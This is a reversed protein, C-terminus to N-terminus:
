RNLIGLQLAMRRQFHRVTAALTDLFTPLEYPVDGSGVNAATPGLCIVVCLWRQMAPAVTIYHLASGHPPGATTDHAVRCEPIAEALALSLAAAFSGFDEMLQGDETV